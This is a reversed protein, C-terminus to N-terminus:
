FFSYYLDGPEPEQGCEECFYCGNAEIPEPAIEECNECLCIGQEELDGKSGLELALTILQGIQKDIVRADVPQDNERLETELAQLARIANALTKM